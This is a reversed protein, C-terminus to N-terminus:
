FQTFGNEILWDITVPEPMNDYLNKLRSYDEADGEIELGYDDIGFVTLKSVMSHFYYLVLHVEVEDNPYNPYFDDTTKIMKKHQDKIMGM